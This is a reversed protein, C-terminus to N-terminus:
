GHLEKVLAIDGEPEFGSSACLALGATNADSMEVYARRAGQTRLDAEAEALLARGLGRARAFPAVAIHYIYARWGDFAVVVSGALQEGEHSVLLKAAAGHTLAQWENEDASSLGVSEWLKLVADRDGHGARRVAWKMLTAM